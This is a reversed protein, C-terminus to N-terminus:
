AGAVRPVYKIPPQTQGVALGSANPFPYVEQGEQFDFMLEATM